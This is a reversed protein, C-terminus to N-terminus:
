GGFIYLLLKVFPKLFMFGLGVPVGIAIAWLYVVLLITEKKM